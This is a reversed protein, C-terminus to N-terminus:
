MTSINSFTISFALVTRIYNSNDTAFTSSSSHQLRVAAQADDFIQKNASLRKLGIAYGAVATTSPLINYVLAQLKHWVM